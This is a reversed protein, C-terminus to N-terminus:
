DSNVEVPRDLWPVSDLSFDRACLKVSQKQCMQDCYMEWVSCLIKKKQMETANGKKFYYFM